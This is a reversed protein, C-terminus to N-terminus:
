ARIFLQRLEHALTPNKVKLNSRESLARMGLQEAKKLFQKESMSGEPDTEILISAYRSAGSGRTEVELVRALGWVKKDWFQILQDNPQLSGFCVDDAPGEMAEVIYEKAVEKTLQTVRERVANPMQDRM